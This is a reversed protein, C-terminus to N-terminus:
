GSRGTSFHEVLANVLGPITSERAVVDVTLGADRATDATIPGICALTKGKLPTADGGLLAVLNSVTSSSTFTVVDFGDEGVLDQVAERSEEPLVTLYVAVDDVVAGAQALGQSLADRGTEARLLLISKNRIGGKALGAVMAESVSERPKLDALIGWSKLAAATVPGIACVKTSSFVRADLDLQEMRQFVERVGNASAFVVWDYTSMSTLASDMRAYEEVPKIAITPIELPQAGNEALLQSLAGAQDRTRPVLVRKGFLPKDDFWHIRERLKVVQGFVAVVPPTLSALRGKELIDDLSGVVTRQYPETGWQVLAAPTAPDLGHQTLTDVIGTLTEWGMLVVLTGSGSALREWDISSEVKTPDESGSVITVYSSVRRHTLPIGAYAPAAIASTIGPVVDFLVGAEALVEAEEGGRGFIFPDGGKLRVVNKGERAKEVLLLNIETQGLQQSGRAKGVNVLEADQSAEQVLRSDVLRDYVVVQAERLLQLGRATILGPDGPGAGVLYVKGQETL